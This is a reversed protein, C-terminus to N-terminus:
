LEIEWTKDRVAIEGRLKKIHDDFLAQQDKEHNEIIEKTFLKAVVVAEDFDSYLKYGEIDSLEETKLLRVFLLPKWKKGPKKYLIHYYDNSDTFPKVRILFKDPKTAPKKEAILVPKKRWRLKKM